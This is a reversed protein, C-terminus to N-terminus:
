QMGRNNTSRFTESFTWSNLLMAFRNINPNLAMYLNNKYVCQEPWEARRFICTNSNWWTESVFDEINQKKRKYAKMFIVIIVRNAHMMKTFHWM